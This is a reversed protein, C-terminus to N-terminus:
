QQELRRITELLVDGIVQFSNASLKDVTDAETHWFSNNPGYDFDILDLASIGQRLFPMHDDEIGGGFDRGGFYRGYGRESAARWVLERLRPASNLEYVLKLDKDGIMDINILAKIRDRRGDSAFKAALHRSGYLSDTDSWEKVAEEGDFWVLYITDKRPLGKLARALALLAGASSGGDNAGVFGLMRKTDYHGTIAIIKNGPGKGPFSAILNTMPVPGLPTQATFSDQEVPIGLSKLQALLYARTKTLNTSGSPRPGFATIAKTDALAQAGSFSGSFSGAQARVLSCVLAALLLQKVAQSRSLLHSKQGHM